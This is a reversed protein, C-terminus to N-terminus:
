IRNARGIDRKMENIKGTYLFFSIPLLNELDKKIAVFYERACVLFLYIILGLFFSFVEQWGENSHPGCELQCHVRRQRVAQHGSNSSSDTRSSAGTRHHTLEETLGCHPINEEEIISSPTSPGPHSLCFYIFLLGWSPFFVEEREENSHPGCEHQCHVRRERVAQHASNSSSDTRLSADTRRHTLGCHPHKGKRYDILPQPDM